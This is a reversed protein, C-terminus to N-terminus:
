LSKFAIKRNKRRRLMMKCQIGKKKNARSLVDCSSEILALYKSRARVISFNSTAGSIMYPLVFSANSPWYSSFSSSFFPDFGCIGARRGNRLSLIRYREQSRRRRRRGPKEHTNSDLGLVHSISSRARTSTSLASPISHLQM